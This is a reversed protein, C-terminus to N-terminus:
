STVKSYISMAQGILASLNSMHCSRVFVSGTLHIYACTNLNVTTKLAKTQRTFHIVVTQDGANTKKYTHRYM